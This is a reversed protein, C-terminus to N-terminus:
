GHMATIEHQIQTGSKIVPHCAPEIGERGIAHFNMGIDVRRRDILHHPHIQGNNAIDLLGNSGQQFFHLRLIKGRVCLSQRAPPILNICPAALIAQGILLFGADDLRLIRYFAEILHAAVPIYIDGSFYALMLHPRRLIEAKMLGIAPHCRAPQPCHSIAQWCSDARLNGM